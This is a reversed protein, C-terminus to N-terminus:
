PTPVDYSFVFLENTHRDVKPHASCPHELQGDFDDFGISKLDLDDKQPIVQVQFPFNSELLAYTRKAHTIMATNATQDRHKKLVQTHYGLYECAEQIPALLVGIETMDQLQRGLKRGTKKEQVYKDTKTYRNCYYLQGKSLCVAHIMSDGAFWHSRKTDSDDCRLNPGNRLFTGNLDKPVVGESIKLVKYSVEHDVSAFNGKLFFPEAPLPNGDKDKRDQSM